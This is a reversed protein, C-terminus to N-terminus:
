RARAARPKEALKRAGTMATEFLEDPRCVRNVIGMEHAQEATFSEGLMFLEAARQYGVTRPLLLSSAAEPVVALNIFPLLFRANDAAYVLECHLLMTTGVGVATGGVAAVMPFQAAGLAGLFEFVPDDATSSDPPHDIFDKLDNGATFCDEQGTFLVVRVAKDTEARKMAASIALYMDVTLANKKEPRNMRVILVGSDLETIVHDTM